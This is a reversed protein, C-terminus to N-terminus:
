GANLVLNFATGGAATQMIESASDVWFDADASGNLVGVSAGFKCNILQCSGDTTNGTWDIPDTIAAATGGIWRCNEFVVDVAGTASVVADAWATAGQHRFTCNVIEASAVDNLDLAPGQGGVTEVYLNEIRLNTLGSSAAISQVIMTAANAAPTVM